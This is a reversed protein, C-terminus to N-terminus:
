MALATPTPSPSPTLTPSPAPTPSPITTDTPPLITPTPAPPPSPESVRYLDGLERTLNLYFEGYGTSPEIQTGEIWENFSTIIVWDAGSRIAGEWCRRYYAGGARDRVFADPRGTVRDDYGPMVTAVWYRATGHESSWARVRDGWRVLTGEPEPDWAVSYLHNGDFVELYDLNIGEAIWISTHNPDVQHANRRGAADIQDTARFSPANLHRRRDGDV